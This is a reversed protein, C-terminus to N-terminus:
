SRNHRFNRDDAHRHVEPCVPPTHVHSGGRQSVRVQVLPQFFEAVLNFIQPVHVDDNGFGLMEAIGMGFVELFDRVRAFVQRLQDQAGIFM